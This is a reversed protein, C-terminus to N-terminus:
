ANMVRAFLAQHLRRPTARILLAMFKNAL